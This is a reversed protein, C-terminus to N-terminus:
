MSQLGALTRRMIVLDSITVSGSRNVDGGLAYAPSLTNLGALHRRLCVVDSITMAGDGNTDGRVSASYSTSYSGDTEYFKIIMGSALKSEDSLETSGSFIRVTANAFTAKFAGVTLGIDMGSVIKNGADMTYTSNTAATPTEAESPITGAQYIINVNSKLIYAYSTTHNYEWSNCSRGASNVPVESIIKYYDGSEGLVVVSMGVPSYSYSGAARDPDRSSYKYLAFSSTSPQSYAYATTNTVGITYKGYDKYGLLQDIEFMRNAVKEGHWPDSAYKVNVGTYKNGPNTGFYRSDGTYYQAWGSDRDSVDYYNYGLSTDVYFYADFYNRNMWKAHQVIGNQASTYVEAQSPDSDFAGVGFFNANEIAFDSKGYASELDAFAIEMAANVGYRTQGEIFTSGLNLYACTRSTWYTSNRYAIYQNLEDVTYSTQTRYSLMKYYICHTGVANTKNVADIPDTYYTYGDLSYYRVGSQMFSPAKDVTISYFYTNPVSPDYYSLYHEMNEGDRAYYDFEYQRPYSSTNRGYTFAAPILIVEDVFCTGTYGSLTLTVYTGSADTSNYYCVVYNTCYASTGNGLTSAFTLTANYSNIVVMGQKMALVKDSPDRIVANVDSNASFAQYAAAYTSFTQQQTYSCDTGAIDLTYSGNAADVPTDICFGFIVFALFLSIIFFKILHKKMLYESSIRRTPIQFM